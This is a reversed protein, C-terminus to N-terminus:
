IKAIETKMFPKLETSNIGSLEFSVKQESGLQNFGTEVKFSNNDAGITLTLRTTQTSFYDTSVGAYQNDFLAGSGPLLATEIEYTKEGTKKFLKASLSGLAPGIDTFKEFTYPTVGNLSVGGWAFTGNNPTYQYVHYLNDETNLKIISDYDDTGTYPQSSDRQSFYVAKDTLSFYGVTPYDIYNKQTEDLPDLVHYFTKAYRYSTATKMKDFIAQLEPNDNTYGTSPLHAVSTTSYDFSLTYTTKRQWYNIAKKDPGEQDPTNLVLSTIKGDQITLSADSVWNLSSAQYCDLLFEAKENSLHYVGKSDLTFDSASIFDWPNRFQNQYAIPEYIGTNIDYNSAYSKSYVNNKDIAESYASLTDPDEFYTKDPASYTSISAPNKVLPDNPNTRKEYDYSERSSSIKVGRETDSNLYDLSVSNTFGLDVSTSDNPHLVDVSETMHVKYNKKFPELAAKLAKDEPKSSTTTTTPTTTISPATTISPSSSTTTNCSTLSVLAFTGLTLLKKFKM